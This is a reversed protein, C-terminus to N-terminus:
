PDIKPASQCQRLLNALPRDEEIAWGELEACLQPPLLATRKEYQQGRASEDM